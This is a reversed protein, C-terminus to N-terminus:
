VAKGTLGNFILTRERSPDSMHCNYYDQVVTRKWDQGDFVLAQNLKGNTTAIDGKTPAVKDSNVYYPSPAKEIVKITGNCWYDSPAYNTEGSDVLHYGGVCRNCYGNDYVRGIISEGKWDPHSLEVKDGVQLAKLENSTIM